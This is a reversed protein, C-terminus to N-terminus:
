TSALFFVCLKCEFGSKQVLVFALAVARAGLFVVRVEPQPLFLFHREVNFHLFNVSLSIGGCLLM